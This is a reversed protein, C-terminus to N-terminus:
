IILVEELSSIEKLINNLHLNHDLMNHINSSVQDESTRKCYKELTTSM